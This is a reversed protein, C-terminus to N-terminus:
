NIKEIKKLAYIIDFNQPERKFVLGLLMITKGRDIQVLFREYYRRNEIQEMAEEIPKNFKVEIVYIVNPGGDSFSHRVAGASAKASAPFELMLDISGINTSYESQAKIGAGICIMMLLSHYFKEEKSHLQYPIHAFLQKLFFSKKL